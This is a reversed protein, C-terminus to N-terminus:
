EKWTVQLTVKRGDRQVVLKKKRDKGVLARLLDFRDDLTAGDLELLRDGPRVGAHAAASDESVSTVRMTGRDIQVGLRRRPRDPVGTSRRLGERSLMHDLDAIGLAGIAIVTASHQQYDPIALDYTDNQTHWGYRYQADGRQIWFYGPVGHRLFSVHDSGAFSNLGRVKRVSFPMEPDLEM